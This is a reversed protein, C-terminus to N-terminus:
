AYVEDAMELICDELFTQQAELMTIKVQLQGVTPPEPAPPEPEPAPPPDYAGGIYAGEYSPLAGFEAAIEDNECVIMNVITGNKTICYNM